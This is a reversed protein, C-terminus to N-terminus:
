QNSITYNACFQLFFFCDVALFGYDRPCKQRIGLWLELLPTLPSPCSGHEILLRRVGATVGFIDRENCISLNEEVM